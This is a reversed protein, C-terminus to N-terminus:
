ARLRRLSTVSFAFARHDSLQNSLPSGGATSQRDHHQLFMLDVEDTPTLPRLRTARASRLARRAGSARRSGTGRGNHLFRSSAYWHGLTIPRENTRAPRFSHGLRDPCAIDEGPGPASFGARLRSKKPPDPPWMATM